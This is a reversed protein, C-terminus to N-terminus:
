RLDRLKGGEKFVRRNADIGAFAQLLLIGAAGAYNHNAINEDVAGTWVLSITALLESAAYALSVRSVGAESADNKLDALFEKGRSFASTKQEIEPENSQEFESMSYPNSQTLKESM